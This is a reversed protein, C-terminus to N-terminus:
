NLKKILIPLNKRFVKCTYKALCWNCEEGVETRECDVIDISSDEAIEKPIKIRLVKGNNFSEVSLKVGWFPRQEPTLSM